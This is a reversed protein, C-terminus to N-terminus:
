SPTTDMEIGSKGPAAASKKVFLRDVDETVINSRGRLQPPLMAGTQAKHPATQHPTTKAAKPSGQQPKM